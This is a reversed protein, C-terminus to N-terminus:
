PPNKNVSIKLGRLKLLISSLLLSLLIIVGLLHLFLVFLSKLIEGWALPAAFGM